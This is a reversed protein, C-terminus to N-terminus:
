AAGANTRTFGETNAKNTLLTRAVVKRAMDSRNEVSKTCKSDTFLVFIFIHRSYQKLDICYRAAM